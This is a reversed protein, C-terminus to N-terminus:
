SMDKKLNKIYDSPTVGEIQKFVRNFTAQSKFGASTYIYMLTVKTIDSENILQKVYEVRCKNIYDSFSLYGNSKISKAIYLTNIQLIHSLQPITFNPDKFHFEKEVVNEIKTFLEEYKEIHDTTGLQARDNKDPQLNEDFYVGQNEHDERIAETKIKDNYYSLLFIVLINVIGVFTDSINIYNDDTLTFYNVDLIKSLYSVTAIILLIYVTYIYVFKKELFIYAGLPVPLLWICTASSYKWFYLMVFAAFLPAYTLHLIVLPKIRYSKRIILFTKLLIFFYVFTSIAFNRDHLIFYFVLSYILLVASMFYVYYAICQRKLEEVSLNNVIKKNLVM